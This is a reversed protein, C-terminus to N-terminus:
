NICLPCTTYTNVRRRIPKIENTRGHVFNYATCALAGRVSDVPFWLSFLGPQDKSLSLAISRRGAAATATGRGRIEIM